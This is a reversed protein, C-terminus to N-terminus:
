LLQKKLTNVNSKFQSTVRKVTEEVDDRILSLNIGIVIATIVISIVFLIIFSFGTITKTFLLTLIILFFGFLWPLQQMIANRVLIKVAAKKIVSVIDKTLIPLKPELIEFITYLFDATLPQKAVTECIENGSLGLSSCLDSNTM